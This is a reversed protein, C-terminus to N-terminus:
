TPPSRTPPWNSRISSRIPSRIASPCCNSRAAAVDGRFKALQLDLGASLIAAEEATPSAAPPWSSPTPSGSPRRTAETSCDDAAGPRARSRCLDSREAAHASAAAHEHAFPPVVCLERSPMDFITMDPPAAPASGSRTCAAAISTTAWTTSTTACTATSTPRTGCARPSIRAAGCSGGLKEVLLGSIALANDRIM